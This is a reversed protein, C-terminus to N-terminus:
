EFLHHKRYQVPSMYNLSSHMRHNNYWNVYDALEIRLRELSQFTKNAVFEKKITKYSAEAVANDYPNGARSLSRKINFANLAEDIYKNKFESGRDTHFIKVKSLNVRTNLFANKVLKADKKEGVSFGLIERNYLDLLICIYNWKKGVRVYTLDSVIVELRERDNFNRDIINSYTDKNIKDIQPNYQKVTYCSILGYKLMIQGIKKRSTHIDLKKLELRIRRTGYSNKSKKFIHIILNELKTNYVKQAKQYYVLSRTVELLKCM